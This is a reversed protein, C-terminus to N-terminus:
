THEVKYLLGDGSTDEHVHLHRKPIIYEFVQCLATYITHSVSHYSSSEPM